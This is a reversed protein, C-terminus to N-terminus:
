AGPPHFISFSRDKEEGEAHLQRYPTVVIYLAPQTVVAYFSRSSLVDTKNEARREPNEQDKKEEQEIKCNLRISVTAPMLM